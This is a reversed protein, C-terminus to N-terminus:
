FDLGVDFIFLEIWKILDADETQDRNYYLADHHAIKHYLTICVDCKQIVIATDYETYLTIQNGNIIFIYVNGLGTAKIFRHKFGMPFILGEIHKKITTDITDM